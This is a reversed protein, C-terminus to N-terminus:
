KLLDILIDGHCKLPACYCVLGSADKLPKLWEPEIELRRKAYLSYQMIVFERDGHKGIVYPNGWESGRGIYIADAPAKNIKYVKM